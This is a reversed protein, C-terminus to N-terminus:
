KMMGVADSWEGPNVSAMERYKTVADSWEGPTVSAM